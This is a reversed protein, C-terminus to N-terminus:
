DWSSYIAYVHLDDHTYWEDSGINCPRFSIQFPKKKTFFKFGDAHQNICNLHGSSGTCLVRSSFKTCKLMHMYLYAVGVWFTRLRCIIYQYCSHILFPFLSYYIFFFNIINIQYNNVSYFFVGETNYFCGLM